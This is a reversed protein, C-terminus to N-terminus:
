ENKIPLRKVQSRKKIRLFEKEPYKEHLELVGARGDKPYTWIWKYFEYTDRSFFERSFPKVEDLYEPLDSRKKGSRRLASVMCVVRNIDLFIILDAEAFRMEMTGKYNGDIIWQGGSMMERQKAIKEEKPTMFIRCAVPM